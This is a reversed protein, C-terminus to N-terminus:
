VAIYFARSAINSTDWKGNVKACVVMKYTGSPVNNATFTVTNASINGNIMKWGGSTYYAIGYNQAGKVATWKLQLSNGVVSRTIIVPYEPVKEKPTVVLANSLDSTNWKGNSRAVVVVKYKKGATLNKLTYSTESGQAISKWKNSMFGYVAYKDAGEVKDWKLTVYGDCKVYTVVPNNVPKSVTGAPIVNDIFFKGCLSCTHIDYGAETATPAVTTVTYKHGTAKIVETYSKGCSCTYTKVGNNTCTAAKTVKSTYSHTHIKDIYNDKYSYGCYICTHLDYGQATETPAFHETRYSHDCTVTIPLIKTSYIVGDIVLDIKLDCEGVSVPKLTVSYSYYGNNENENLTVSVIKKDYSCELTYDYDTNGTVAFYATSKSNMTLDEKELPFDIRINPAIPDTYTDNYSHGCVSCTHITYGQIKTTPAVITDVYKHGTAKIVQSDACGCITCKRTKSGDKTCTAATATTWDGFNHTSTKAISQTEEKGCVSCKRTRQGEAACTAAKTTSWNGYKHDAYDTYNDKYSDGCSCKHLTYGKTTCTAAVVSSSYSHTHVKTFPNWESLKMYAIRRVSGAPYDIKWYGNTYAEIAICSDGPDVWRNSEQNGYSDYTHIQSPATCSINKNYGTDVTGPLKPDSKKTFPNWESLKMYAKRRTSGAPYDIKWYGNTYAEIATCSDGKDVWRNSEQNGYEDYTHIQSPATCSINKNYSSDVTGPLIANSKKTFPNWESLKMFATRRSSGAPYDIKWYGNTYAEIATCSDGADVWRNSEQNGYEDYTHIQSPATCSINTNYSSDVTGPLIPNSKKTFPNWESLKMYAKRRSSGAPYDIKWYGNTYAEIATCSDGADVWRDSEQNGCEDYTHIQSPATCSINTNYTTDVTGPLIPDPLDKWTEFVALPDVYTGNKSVELHIHPGSANGTMGTYGILDGQKVSRTALTITSCSYTTASCPYSLSSIYTLTVNNFSSLHAGKVKYVGNSSTFIFHNGYSALKSYNVAYSQCFQVTGECPAYVPTGSSAVYDCYFGNTKVSSSRSISGKLPYRFGSDAFVATYNGPLYMVLSCVMLLAMFTSFLRKKM